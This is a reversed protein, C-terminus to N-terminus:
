GVRGEERDEHLSLVTTATVEEASFLFTKGNECHVFLLEVKEPDFDKSVGTGSRNGGRTRLEVQYSKGRKYWVTKVQVRQLGGGEDVILDYSQSDTLPVCVTYGQSAFWGIAVGMGVDGQKKSNKQDRLM